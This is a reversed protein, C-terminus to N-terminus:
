KAGKEFSRNIEVGCEVGRAFGMRHGLVFSIAITELALVLLMLPIAKM